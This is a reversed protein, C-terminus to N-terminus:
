LKSITLTNVWRTFLLVYTSYEYFSLSMRKADILTLLVYEGVEKHANYIFSSFLYVYLIKIKKKETLWITENINFYAKYEM